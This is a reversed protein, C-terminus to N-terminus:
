VQVPRRLKDPSSGKPVAVICEGKAAPFTLLSGELDESKSGDRYLSVASRGWPNRLRCEGGAQSRLEVFEVAGARMSSTVLFAGRALLTFEADWQKPWAGFLRIVPDKGPAPPASQLLAAHLGATMEGLRQCDTAGPGERLTMRNALVGNHGSGALDVFDGKPTLVRIQNPLIIRIHGARGLNAAASAISSLVGIHTKEDLNRAPGADYTANAIKVTEPDETELTCLDYHTAPFIGARPADNPRAPAIATAWLLPDGPKRTGATENTALPALNELFERWLPRMGADVGLMESARILLPTLGRMSSIDEQADQSNWNSESNNVHHLHYKGDAGKVLNPFNRYFEVAGKLMPYARDRLWERDQTCEYRIWYLFAIKSATSMMHSVHGFPGAGKDKWIWRGEVWQGKDIFSWRSNHPHGTEALQRFRESRRDWPKRVLYLDRMEDAIEGPLEALGNFWSTEPIWIGKSGWQQRAATAVSEYMRSYMAFMPDMLELRNAPMLGRYYHSTNNWWHQSGWARMDGNTFWLMGGFRPPCAGRSSSGMVYLFYTYHQEVFDAVGDASTLHIFGKAWFDRWWTQNDALLAQFGKGAAADLEKLALAAPDQKPDFSAASGILVTFRGKGPAASLRVTSDNVYKAKAKRGTVGIAVASANYYDGERFEQTLIVRGDRIEVKSAATHNATRILVTHRQTLEWNQGEHYQVAYRLMRLDINVPAPQARQDDIEVAMVDRENWALVRATVGNGKATMLADYVGLRQHFAPPAFVDEGFDVLDIDVYGCGSGYDTHRIPFSHTSCSIPYVDARNIQFKLASPTTWVLSGMRGNGVPMGEESRSAPKTYTLDARSVLKRHDLSLITSQNAANPAATLAVAGAALFDRRSVPNKKQM